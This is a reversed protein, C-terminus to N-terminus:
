AGITEKTKGGAQREQNAARCRKAFEIPTQYGLSSHLREENWYRQWLRLRVQADAVSLFMETNLFEDRLRAHFSEAFGNQWPKGPQIYAANIGYRYCLGRLALAVFEPGNDMRLATPVGREAILMELVQCVRESKFSCGAELALVERTWEDSVSLIRLKTGNVTSDLVFDLCWVGNPSQAAVERPSSVKRLRKQKRRPPVSLGEQRWLRQVRKHNVTIGARWLEQYALRYGRRRRKNAFERLREVLGEEDAKAPRARYRVM